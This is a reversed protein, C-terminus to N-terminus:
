RLFSVFGTSDFTIAKWFEHCTYWVDYIKQLNELNSFFKTKQLRHALVESFYPSTSKM